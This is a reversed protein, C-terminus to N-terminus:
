PKVFSFTCTHSVKVFPSVVQLSLYSKVSLFHCVEEEFPRRIDLETPSGRDEEARRLDEPNSKQRKVEAPVFSMVSSFCSTFVNM